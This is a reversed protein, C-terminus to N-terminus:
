RLATCSMSLAAREISVASDELGFHKGQTACYWILFGVAFVGSVVLDIGALGRTGFWKAGLGDVSAMYACPASGLSVAIAYRSGGSKGAGGIVQLVLATFLANCAGMTLLYLISSVLYTGPRPKGLCLIGIALANALGAVPYALLRDIRGPVMLVLMAGAALLLGGLWGNLWAVQDGTMGYDPAIGPM